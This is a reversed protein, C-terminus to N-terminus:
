PKEHFIGTLGVLMDGRKRWTRYAHVVDLNDEDDDASQERRKCHKCSEECPRRSLSDSNLHLKGARHFIEFDFTQLVALWRLLQQEPNRLTQLWRLSSHDTRVAFKRFLLYPECHKLAVVVALLERRTVCYNREEKSFAHSYHSIVREEEDQIQSLVCGAGTLSADADVIMLNENRNLVPDITTLSEKTIRPYALIPASILATKRESFAKDDEGTWQFSRNKETLRYLPEAIEAFNRIFAAHHNALGLFARVETVSSPTPWDRVKQIKADDRAIGKASVRHGLFVLEEQLIKCKKPHLKLNHQQLSKLVLEVNDLGEDISRSPIIIDDLFAFCVSAKGDLRGGKAIHLVREMLSQFTAPANTLGFPM